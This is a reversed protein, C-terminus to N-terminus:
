SVENGPNCASFIDPGIRIVTLDHMPLEQAGVRPAVQSLVIESARNARARDSGRELCAGSSGKKAAALAPRGERLLVAGQGFERIQRDVDLSELGADLISREFLNANTARRQELGDRGIWSCDLTELDLLNTQEALPEYEFELAFKEEDEV